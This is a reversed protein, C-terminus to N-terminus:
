SSGQDNPGRNSMQLIPIIIIINTECTSAFIFYSIDTSLRTWVESSSVWDIHSLEAILDLM